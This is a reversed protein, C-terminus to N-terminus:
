HSCVWTLDLTITRSEKLENVDLVDSREVQNGDLQTTYVDEVVEAAHCRICAQYNALFKEIYFRDICKGRGVGFDRRYPRLRRLVSSWDSVRDFAILRREVMKGRLLGLM